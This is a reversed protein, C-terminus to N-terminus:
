GFFSEEIYIGLARDWRFNVRQLFLIKNETSATEVAELGEKNRTSELMDETFNLCILWSSVARYRAEDWGGKRGDLCVLDEGKSSVVKLVLFGSVYLTSLSVPRDISFGTGNSAVDKEQRPDCRRCFMGNYASVTGRCYGIDYAARSHSDYTEFTTLCDQCKQFKKKPM